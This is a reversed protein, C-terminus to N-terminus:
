REDMQRKALDASLEANEREAAAIVAESQAIKEREYQIASTNGNIRQILLEITTM